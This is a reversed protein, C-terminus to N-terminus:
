IFFFADLFSVYAVEDGIRCSSLTQDRTIIDVQRGCNSHRQLEAYGHWLLRRSPRHCVLRPLYRRCRKLTEGLRPDSGHGPLACFAVVQSPCARIRKVMLCAEFLREVVDEQLGGPPKDNLPQSTRGDMGMSM